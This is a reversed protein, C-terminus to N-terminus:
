NSPTLKVKINEIRLLDGDKFTVNKFESIPMVENLDDYMDQYNDDSLIDTLSGEEGLKSGFIENIGTNSNYPDTQINGFGEIWTVDYTGSPFDDGATFIGYELELEKLDQDRQLTEEAHDCGASIELTGTISLIDGNELEVNELKESVGGPMLEAASTGADFIENISSSESFINGFGSKAFFKYTGSPIDIGVTYHGATLTDSFSEKAPEEIINDESEPTIYEATYPQETYGRIYEAITKAAAYYSFIGLSFLVIWLCTCWVKFFKRQLPSCWLLILGVPACFIFMMLLAFWKQFYFPYNQPIKEILQIDPVNKRFYSLARNISDNNKKSFCFRNQNGDFCIFDMWGGEIGSPYCYEIRSINEYLIKRKNYFWDRLLIGDKQVFLEQSKGKISM